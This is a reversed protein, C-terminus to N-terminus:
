RSHRTKEVRYVSKELTFNINATAKDAGPKGAFKPFSLLEDPPDANIQLRYTKM